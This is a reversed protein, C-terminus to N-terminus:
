LLSLIITWSVFVCIIKHKIIKWEVLLLLLKINPNLVDFWNSVVRKWYNMHEWVSPVLEWTVKCCHCCWPELMFCRIMEQKFIKCEVLLLFSKIIPNVVDFCNSVVRKWYNMHEWVSPVLKLTVKCCHCCWPELM